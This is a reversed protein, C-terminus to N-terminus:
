QAASEHETELGRLSYYKEATLACLSDSYEITCSM